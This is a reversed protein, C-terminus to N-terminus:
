KEEKLPQIAMEHLINYYNYPGLFIHEKLKKIDYNNQIKLIEELMSVQEIDNSCDYLFLHLSEPRVEALRENYRQFKAFLQTILKINIKINRTEAM